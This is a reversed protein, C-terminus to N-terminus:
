AYEKTGETTIKKRLSILINITRHGYAMMTRFTHRFAPGPRRVKATRQFNAFTPTRRKRPRERRFHAQPNM